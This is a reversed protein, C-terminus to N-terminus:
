ADTVDVFFTYYIRYHVAFYDVDFGCNGVICWLLRYIDLVRYLTFLTDVPLLAGNLVCVSDYSRLVLIYM